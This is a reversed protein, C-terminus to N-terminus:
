DLAKWSKPMDNDRFGFTIAEKALLRVDRFKRGLSSLASAHGIAAAEWFFLGQRSALGYVSVSARSLRM